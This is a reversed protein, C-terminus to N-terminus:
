IVAHSIRGCKNPTLATLTDPRYDKFGKFSADMCVVIPGTQQLQEWFAHICSPYGELFAKFGKLIKYEYKQNKTDCQGQSGTYKM